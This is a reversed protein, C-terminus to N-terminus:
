PEHAFYEGIREAMVARGTDTFHPGGNKFVDCTPAELKPGVQVREPFQAAVASVAEDVFPQVVSMPNGCSRNGPARIMTLLVIKQVGPFHALTAHVVGVLGAQWEAATTYQWNMATFLVREPAQAHAACPSSPALSWVSDHEDAWQELSTHPKTIAEWRGDEVLREFGAEFWESTVAV